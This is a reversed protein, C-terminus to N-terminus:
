VNKQRIESHQNISEITNTPLVGFSQVSLRPLLCLIEAFPKALLASMIQIPENWSWGAVVVPEQTSDPQRRM